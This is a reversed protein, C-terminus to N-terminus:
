WKVNIDTLWQREPYKYFNGTLKRNLPLVEDCPGPFMWTSQGCECSVLIRYSGIGVKNKKFLFSSTSCTGAISNTRLFFSWNNTSNKYNWNQEVKNTGRANDQTHYGIGITNTHYAPLGGCRKCRARHDIIVIQLTKMIKGLGFSFDSIIQIEFPLTITPL